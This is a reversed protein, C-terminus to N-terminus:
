RWSDSGAYPDLAPRGGTRREQRPRKAPAHLARDPVFISLCLADARDPSRNLGSPPARRFDAKPTVKMRGSAQEITEFFHLEAALKPDPPFCGGERMWACARGVLADRQRDWMLPEFSARDSPRVSIVKYMGPHRSLHERFAGALGSGVGDRDYVLIPCEGPRGYERLIGMFAAIHGQEDLGRYPLLAHAHLGRRPCFMTEDGKGTPGAPDLGVVLREPCDTPDFFDLRIVGEEDPEFADRWREEAETIAAISFLRGDENLAFEGLVRVMYLPSDEGWERRKEEIYGRTALGPIVVRGQVVNPSEESSVTVCRYFEKKRHFADFFEGVTRTPNSFLVVRAGGARNGEIAEFIEEHVGSAEDVIYFLNTGSTGAVAEKERATFGTITRFDTQENGKACKLGAQAREALQGLISASHPCPRPGPRGREEDEAKCELCRGSRARMMRLERWLIANVQRATTSTMIVQSDPGFSSRFWLALGAASHSKSVKHGSKVAVRDHDRVAELIEIQKSWPEVGLIERFYGVPDKRYKPSPFTLTTAEAYQALLEFLFSSEFTQRKRREKRQRDATPM